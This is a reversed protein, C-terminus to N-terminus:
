TLEDMRLDLLWLSLLPQPIVVWMM